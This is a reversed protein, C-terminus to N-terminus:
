LEFTIKYTEYNHYIYLVISDKDLNKQIIKNIDDFTETKYGNIGLLYDGSDIGVKDAQTGSIVKKIKLGKRTEEILIGVAEKLIIEGVEEPPKKLVFSFDKKEGNRLVQLNINEGENYNFLESYFDSKERIEVDEVMLIKDGKKLSSFPSISLVNKIVNSEKEFSIGLFIPKVEGYRLIDKLIKKARDIPIAFGIGQANKIIATNIGIVEGFINLLPGGSNGPNIAADTQIFDSYITGSEGKVKRKLASIVGTTVTNSLGMPNGIAIVSEGIMLDKSTGLTAAPLNVNTGKIKLIAIDSNEDTGLVEANYVDGKLTTIKINKAGEIVHYNTIIIGQPNTIVGTGLNEYKYLRSYPSFFDFFLDDFPSIQRKVVVEASINVVSQSVKEVVEVVQNKRLFPNSSFSFNSFIILIFFVNKMELFKLM